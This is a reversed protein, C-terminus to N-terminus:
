HIESLRDSRLTTVFVQMEQPKHKVLVRRICLLSSQIKTKANVTVEFLQCVTFLTLLSIARQIVCAHVLEKSYRMSLQVGLDLAPITSEAM